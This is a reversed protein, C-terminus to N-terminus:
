CNMFSIEDFRPFKTSYIMKDNRYNTVTENIKFVKMKGRKNNTFIYKDDRCIEMKVFSMLNNLVLVPNSSLNHMDSVDYFKMDGHDSSTVLYSGDKTIAIDSYGAKFVNTFEFIPRFLRESELSYEDHKYNIKYVLIQGFLTLLFM